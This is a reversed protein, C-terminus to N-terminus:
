KNVNQSSVNGRPRGAMLHTSFLIILWSYVGTSCNMQIEILIKEFFKLILM